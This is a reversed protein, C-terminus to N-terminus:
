LLLQGVLRSKREVVAQMRDRPELEEAAGARPRGIGGGFAEAQAAEAAGSGAAREYDTVLNREVIGEAAPNMPVLNWGERDVLYLQQTAASRIEVAGAGDAADHINHGDNWGCRRVQL